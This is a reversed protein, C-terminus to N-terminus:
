VNDKCINWTVRINMYHQRITPEEQVAANGPTITIGPIIAAHLEALVEASLVRLRQRNAAMMDRGAIRKNTDPVYVNVNSTGIQPCVDCLLDITNIVIAENTDDSPRTDGTYIGGKVSTKGNLLSFLISEIDLPTLM